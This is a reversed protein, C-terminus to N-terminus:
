VAWAIASTIRRAGRIDRRITIRTLREPRPSLSTSDTISHSAARSAAASSSLALMWGATRLHLPCWPSKSSSMGHTCEGLTKRAAAFLLAGGEDREDHRSVGIQL